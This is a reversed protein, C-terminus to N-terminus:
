DHKYIKECFNNYDIKTWILHYYGFKIPHLSFSDIKFHPNTKYSDASVDHQKETSLLKYFFLLIKNARFRKRPFFLCSRGQLSAFRRSAQGLFVIRSSCFLAIRRTLSFNCVIKLKLPLRFEAKRKEHEDKDRLM